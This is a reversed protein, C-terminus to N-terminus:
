FDIRHFLKRLGIKKGEFRRGSIGRNQKELAFEAGEGGGGKNLCAKWTAKYNWGPAILKKSRM